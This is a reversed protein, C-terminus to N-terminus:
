ENDVDGDEMSEEVSEKKAIAEKIEKVLEEKDKGKPDIGLTMAIAALDEDIERGRSTSVKAKDKKGKAEGGELFGKRIEEDLYRKYENLQRYYKGIKRALEPLKDPGFIVLILVLLFLIEGPGLDLVM